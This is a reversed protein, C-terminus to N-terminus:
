LIKGYKSIKNNRFSGMDLRTSPRFIIGIKLTALIWDSNLSTTKLNYKRAQMQWRQMSTRFAVLAAALNQIGM